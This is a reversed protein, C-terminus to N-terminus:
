RTEGLDMKINGEWKLRYRGLSWFGIHILTRGQMSRARGM